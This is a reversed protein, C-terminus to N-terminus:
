SPDVRRVRRQRRADPSEQPRGTLISRRLVKCLRKVADPDDTADIIQPEGNVRIGLLAWLEVEPLEM